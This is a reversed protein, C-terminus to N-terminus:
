KIKYYANMCFNVIYNIDIEVHVKAKVQKAIDEVLEKTLIPIKYEVNKKVELFLKVMLDNREQSKAYGRSILSLNNDFNPALSLIAGTNVDRLLGYNFTHRDVNMIITDLFIIDLYEKVLRSGMEKIININDMYDENDLMISHMPEYNVQGNNTFDESVVYKDWMDYKAMNFGLKNGLEYAFVESFREFESGQKYMYWQGRKMKWCKEYSGINTLEPTPQRGLSFANPDGYLALDSFTDKTFIIDKYLLTSGKEKVWYTDTITAANATLVIEIEDSTNLRLVKKLLRSNTRHLDISRMRLWGEFDSTRIIYLPALEKDMEIINNKEIKVVVKDRSMVAGSFLGKNNPSM